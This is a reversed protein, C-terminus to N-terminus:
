DSYSNCKLGVNWHTILPKICAAKKDEPWEIWTAPLHFTMKSLIGGWCGILLQSWLLRFRWQPLLIYEPLSFESERPTRHGLKRSRVILWWRSSIKTENAASHWTRSLSHFQKKEEWQLFLQMVYFMSLFCLFLYSHCYYNLGSCDLRWAWREVVDM